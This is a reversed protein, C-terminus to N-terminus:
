NIRGRPTFTFVIEKFIEYREPSIPVNTCSLVANRASNAFTRFNSDSFYKSTDEITAQIVKGSPSIRVRLEVKLDRLGEKGPDIRWCREIHTRIADRETMTARDQFLIKNSNKVESPIEEQLSPTSRKKVEEELNKVLSVLEAFKDRPPPKPKRKPHSSLPSDYFVKGDTEVQANELNSVITETPNIYVPESVNEINHEELNKEKEVQKSTIDSIEVLDVIIPAVDNIMKNKFFSNGSWLFFFFVFHLLISLTLGNTM